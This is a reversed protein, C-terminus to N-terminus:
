TTKAIFRSRRSKMMSPFMALAALFDVFREALFAICIVPDLAFFVRVAFGFGFAFDFGLTSRRGVFGTLTPEAGAGIV